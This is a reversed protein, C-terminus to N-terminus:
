GKPPSMNGRAAYHATMLRVLDVVNTVGMKTMLRSRHAEVTKHSIGLSKAIGKNSRGAVIMDIIEQERPTLNRLRALLDEDANRHVRSLADHELARQVCDLFKQNNYPKELFDFAGDKLAQVAMPVEGHASLFIIPARMDMARLRKMLEIGSMGPMRVDLVVCGRLDDTCAALFAHGSEFTEVPIQVSELLWRLSNRVSVEDDVVFVTQGRVTM